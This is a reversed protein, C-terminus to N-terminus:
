ILRFENLPVGALCSDWRYTLAITLRKGTEYVSSLRPIQKCTEHCSPVGSVSIFRMSHPQSDWINVLYPTIIAGTYHSSILKRTVVFLNRVTTRRRIHRSYHTRLLMDNVYFSM